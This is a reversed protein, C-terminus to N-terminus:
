LLYKDWLTKLADASGVSFLNLYEADDYLNKKPINSYDSDAYLKLGKIIDTEIKKMFHMHFYLGMPQCTTLWNKIYDAFWKRLDVIFDESCTRVEELPCEKRLKLHLRIKDGFLVTQEAFLKIDREFETKFATNELATKVKEIKSLLLELHEETQLSYGRGTFPSDHFLLKTIYEPKNRVCDCNLYDAYHVEDLLRIIENIKDAPYYRNMGSNNFIKFATDFLNETFSLPHVHGADGWDTIMFGFADLEDARKKMLTFNRIAYDYRPFFSKWTNTGPCVLIKADINKYSEPMEKFDYNWYCVIIDKGLKKLVEPNKDIMDGWLVIKKGYKAAINKLNLIHTLFLEDKSIIEILHKSKGSAMDYVEDGGIHIYESNFSEAARKYLDDILIYTQDSVSVSWKMESEALYAYQDWKLIHFMHGFSQILPVLSLNIKQAYSSLKKFEKMDYGDAEIGIRPHEPIKFTHEINFFVTDYGSDSIKKLMKKMREFKPVRFRSIDIMCAKMKFDTM